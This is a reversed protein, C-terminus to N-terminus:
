GQFAVLSIFNIAISVIARWEAIMWTWSISKTFGKAGFSLCDSVSTGPPEEREFDEIPTSM